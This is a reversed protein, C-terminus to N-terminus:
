VKKQFDTGVPHLPLDFTTRKGAFYEKLQANARDSISSPCGMDEGKELKIVGLETIADQNYGIKIPGYPSDYIAYNKM